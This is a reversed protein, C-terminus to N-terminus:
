LPDISHPLQRHSVLFVVWVTYYLFITLSVLIMLTGVAKDTLTAQMIINIM